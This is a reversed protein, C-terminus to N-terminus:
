VRHAPLDGRVGAGRRTRLPGNLVYMGDADIRVSFSRSRHRAEEASLEGDRSLKKWGRVLSELRAASISQAHELLTAETEPTAADSM